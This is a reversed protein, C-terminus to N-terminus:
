RFSFPVLQYLLYTGRGGRNRALYFADQELKTHSDLDLDCDWDWDCDWDLDIEIAIVIVAESIM